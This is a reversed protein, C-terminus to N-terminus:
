DKKLIAIMIVPNDDEKVERLYDAAPGTRQSGEMFAAVEMASLRKYIEDGANIAFDPSLDFLGDIDNPYVYEAGGYFTPKPTDCVFTKDKAKDYYGAYNHLKAMYSFIVYGATEKKLSVEYYETEPSRLSPDYPVGKGGLWFLMRPELGSPTVTFVTDDYRAEKFYLGDAAYYIDASGRAVSRRDPASVFTQYNPYAGLVAGNEDFVMLRVSDSGSINSLFVIFNGDKMAFPPGFPQYDAEGVHRGMNQPKRVYNKEGTEINVGMWRDNCDFYLVQREEDFAGGPVVRLYEGPGHGQMGIRKIFSGDARDFLFASQTIVDVAVIYNDTVRTSLYNDNLVCEPTTELRVYEVSSFLRSLPVTEHRADVLDIVPYPVDPVQSKCCCLLSAVAAILIKKM